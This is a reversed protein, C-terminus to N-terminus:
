GDWKAHSELHLRCHARRHRCSGESASRTLVTSIGNVAALSGERHPDGPQSRTQKSLDERVEKGTQNQLKLLGTRAKYSYYTIYKKKEEKAPITFPATRFKPNRTRTALSCFYGQRRNTSGTDQSGGSSVRPGSISEYFGQSKGCLCCTTQM